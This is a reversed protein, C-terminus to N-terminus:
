QLTLSAVQSMASQTGATTYATAGFYWTGSALNSITYTTPTAAALQVQQTLSSPSTGYYIYMGALNTLTSGDTNLTPPTLSVTATGTTSAPATVTITFAPLASSAQGDSVSLVINNYTGTQATTPTGSLQGSAISFTAWAPKNQVSYSLTMGSPDSASPQFSYPSGAVDSTAPTGAITPPPPPTTSQGALVQVSFAPLTATHWGDSAAIVINGYTGVNSAGPTGSLQGTSSNFSAWAPMNSIAFALTRGLTDSASPTFSYAAGATVNIPPSGSITVNDRHRWWHDETTGDSGFSATSWSIGALLTILSLRLPRHKCFYVKNM